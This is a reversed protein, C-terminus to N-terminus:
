NLILCVDTLFKHGNPLAVLNIVHAQIFEDIQNGVVNPNNGFLTRQDFHNLMAGKILKDYDEDALRGKLQIVDGVCTNWTLDRGNYTIWYYDENDTAIAILREIRLSDTIVFQGKLREFKEMIITLVDQM